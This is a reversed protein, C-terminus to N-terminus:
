SIDDRNPESAVRLEGDAMVVCRREINLKRVTQVEGGDPDQGGGGEGKGGRERVFRKGGRGGMVIKKGRKLLVSPDM